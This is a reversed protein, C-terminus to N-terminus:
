SNNKQHLVGMFTFSDNVIQNGFGCQMALYDVLYFLEPKWIIEKLRTRKMERIKEDINTTNIGDININSCDYNTNYLTEDGLKWGRIMGNYGYLKEGNQVIKAKRRNEKQENEKRCQKCTYEWNGLELESKAWFLKGCLYCAVVQEFDDNKIRKQGETIKM